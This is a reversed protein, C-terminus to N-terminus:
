RCIRKLRPVVLFSKVVHYFDPTGGTESTASSPVGDSVWGFTPGSIHIYVEAKNLMGM